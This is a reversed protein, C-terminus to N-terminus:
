AAKTAAASEPQKCFSASEAPPRYPPPTTVAHLLDEFSGIRNAKGKLIKRREDTALTATVEKYSALGNETPEEGQAFLEFRIVRDTQLRRLEATSRRLLNYAQARARDISKQKKAALDDDLMPDLASQAALAAEAAACRHLRWSASVIEDVFTVELAGEPNLQTFLNSALEHWTEIEEPRVFDRQTFLGTAIANQSSAAKGEETRPGTSLAANAQNALTQATTAM